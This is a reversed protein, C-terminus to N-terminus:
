TQDKWIRTENFSESSISIIICLGIASIIIAGISIYLRVNDNLICDTCTLGVSLAIVLLAPIGMIKWISQPFSDKIKLYHRFKTLYLKIRRRSYSKENKNSLTLEKTKAKETEIKIEEDLKIIKEEVIKIVRSPEYTLFEDAKMLGESYAAREQHRTTTNEVFYALIGLRKTIQEIKRQIIDYKWVIFVGGIAIIAGFVQTLASFLYRYTDLTM